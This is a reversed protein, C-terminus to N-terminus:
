FKKSKSISWVNYNDELFDGGNEPYAGSFHKPNGVYDNESSIIMTYILYLKYNYLLLIRRTSYMDHHLM